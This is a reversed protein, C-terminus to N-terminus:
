LSDIKSQTENSAGGVLEVMLFDLLQSMHRCYSVHQGRILGEEANILHKRCEQIIMREDM